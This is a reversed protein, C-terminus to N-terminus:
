DRRSRVKAIKRELDDHLRALDRRYLEEIQARQQPDALSELKARHLIEAEAIKSAHLSRAEAILAKQENSTAQERVGSDADKKRLREMALEVASKPREDDSM